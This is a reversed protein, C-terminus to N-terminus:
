PFKPLLGELLELRGMIRSLVAFLVHLLNAFVSLMGRVNLRLSDLNSIPRQNLICRSSPAVLNSAHSVGHSKGRHRVIILGFAFFQKAMRPLEYDRALSRRAASRM